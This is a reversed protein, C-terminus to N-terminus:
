NKHFNLVGFPVFQDPNDIIIVDGDVIKSDFERVSAEDNDNDDRPLLLHKDLDQGTYERGPLLRFLIMSSVHDESLDPRAHFYFGPGDALNQRDNLNIKLIAEVKARDDVAYYGLVENPNIGAAKFAALTGKFRDALKRNYVFDVSDLTISNWKSKSPLDNLAEWFHSEVIRLQIDFVHNVNCMKANTKFRRRDVGTISKEQEKVIRDVVNIEDAALHIIFTPLARRTDYIVFENSNKAFVSDFGRKRLLDDCLDPNDKTLIDYRGVLVNCLFMKNPGRSYLERVEYSNNDAFYLGRGFQNDADESPMRFGKKPIGSSGSAETGYLLEVTYDNLSKVKAQMFALELNLNQIREIKIVERYFYSGPQIYQIVKDRVQCFLAGTKDLTSIDVVTKEDDANHIKRTLDGIKIKTQNKVKKLREAERLLCGNCTGSDCDEWCEM